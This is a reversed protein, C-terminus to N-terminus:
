ARSSTRRVLEAAIDQIPLVADALGADLVASPMSAIVATLHSEVIVSGGAECISEAGRLGDHGMGTLVVGLVESRYADVASRFRVDAAPSM